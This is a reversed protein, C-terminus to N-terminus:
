WSELFNSMKYCLIPKEFNQNEFREQVLCQTGSRSRLNRLICNDICKCNSIASINKKRVVWFSVTNDGLASYMNHM